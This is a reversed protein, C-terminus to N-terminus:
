NQRFIALQIELEQSPQNCLSQEQNNMCDSQLPVNHHLGCLTQHSLFLKVNSEVVVTQCLCVNQIFLLQISYKLGVQM